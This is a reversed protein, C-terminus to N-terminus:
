DAELFGEAMEKAAKEMNKRLQKKKEPDDTQYHEDQLKEIQDYAKVIKSALEYFMTKAGKGKYKSETAEEQKRIKSEPAKLKKYYDDYIIYGYNDEYFQNYKQALKKRADGKAAKAKEKLSNLEAIVAGTFQKQQRSM